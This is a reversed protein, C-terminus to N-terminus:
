SERDPHFARETARLYLRLDLVLGLRRAPLSQLDVIRALGRLCLLELQFARPLKCRTLERDLIELILLQLLLALQVAHRALGEASPRGWLQTRQQADCHTLRLGLHRWRRVVRRDAQAGGAVVVPQKGGGLEPALFGLALM